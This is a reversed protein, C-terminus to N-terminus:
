SKDHDKGLYYLMIIRELEKKLTMNTEAQAFIDAWILDDAMKKMMVQTEYDWGIAVRTNPHAGKERAFTVGGVREYVYTAGPKLSGM